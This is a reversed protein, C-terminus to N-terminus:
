GEDMKKLLFEGVPLTEDGHVLIHYGSEEWRRINIKRQGVTRSIERPSVFLLLTSGPLFASLKECVRNYVLESQCMERFAPHYAGGTMEQEVSASAHLGMRIVPINEREMRDLIGACVRVAEPLGMPQFTGEKRWCDLLTGQLVVTPYVRLMDPHLRVVEEITESLTEPTDGPLGTMIQLGTLFGEKRLHSFSNRVDQATHGRMNKRLVADNLSQAGLEVTRVGYRKLTELIEPTICDPRTSCRISSAQGSELYPQAEQLFAEMLSRPLATFSGGYFAIEMKGTGFFNEKSFADQLEGCITEPTVADTEGSISKQDCFSCRHPCGMHPIFLPLISEKPHAGM